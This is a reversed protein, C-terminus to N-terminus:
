AFMMASLPALGGSQAWGGLIASPIGYLGSIMNSNAQTQYEYQQNLANQYNAQAGTYDPSSVKAQPPNLFGGTLYKPDIMGMEQQAVKLPMLYNSSAMDYAAPFSKALFDQVSLSHSTDLSRMANDYAPMGPHLGQNKLKTDLQDRETGFFPQLFGVESDLMQKTMGSQMDGISQAPTGSNYGGADVQHGVGSQLSTLIAQLQPSLQQTATYLPVGGPGTGTQSYTLSGFPNVQNVNSMAQGMEAAQKNLDFQKQATVDPSQPTPPDPTDGM